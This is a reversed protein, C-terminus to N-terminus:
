YAVGGVGGAVIGGIAFGRPRPDTDPLSTTM